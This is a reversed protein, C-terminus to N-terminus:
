HSPMATTPSRDRSRHWPHSFNLSTFWTPSSRSDFGTPWSWRRSSWPRVIGAALDPHLKNAPDVAEIAVWGSVSAARSADLSRTLTAFYAHGGLYSLLRVGSAALEERADASLPGDFHVVARREGLGDRLTGLAEQLTGRAMASPASRAGSRWEVEASAPPSGVFSATLALLLVVSAATREVECSM